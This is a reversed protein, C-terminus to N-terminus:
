KTAAPIQELEAIFAARKDKPLTILTGTVGGMYKTLLERIAIPNKIKGNHRTVAEVLAKDTVEAPPAADGLVDGLPDVPEAPNARNAAKLGEPIGTIPDEAGLVSGPTPPVGSRNSNATPAPTETPGPVSATRRTVPKPSASVVPAMGLMEHAKAVASAASLGLATEHSESEDVGFSLKVDVRKNEYEGTKVTRGYTVEGGTIRGM